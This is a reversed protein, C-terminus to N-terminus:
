RGPCVERRWQRAQADWQVQRVQTGGGPAGVICFEARYGQTSSRPDKTSAGITILYLVGPVLQEERRLRTATPPTQGYAICQGPGFPIGPGDFPVEFNWVPEGGRSEYRHVSMSYLHFLGDAPTESRAVSLCPLGGVEAVSAAGM